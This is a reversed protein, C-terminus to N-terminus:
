QNLKLNFNRKAFQNAPRGTGASGRDKVSKTRISVPSKVCSPILRTVSRNLM